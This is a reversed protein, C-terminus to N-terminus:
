LAEEMTLEREDAHEAAWIIVQEAWPKNPRSIAELDCEVEEDDCVQVYWKNEAPYYFYWVGGDDCDWYEVCGQDNWFCGIEEESDLRETTKAELNGVTAGIDHSERCWLPEDLLSEKGTMRMKPIYKHVKAKYEKEWEQEKTGCFPIRWDVAVKIEKVVGPGVNIKMRCYTAGGNAIIFMIAWNPHSFAKVFNTEDTGSPQPSNGPHSHCLINHTQWPALGMDLTREVDEVLDDQDLDFSASTCQQKILRFDTVLLPDDTATTAYGAVETDGRDRMWLLKAYAYATFRLTDGFTMKPTMFESMKTEM